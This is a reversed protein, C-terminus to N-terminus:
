LKTNPRLKKFRSLANELRKEAETKERTSSYWNSGSFAPIEGESADSEISERIKPIQVTPMEGESWNPHDDYAEGESDTPMAEKEDSSIVKFHKPRLTDMRVPIKTQLQKSPILLVEGESFFDNENKQTVEGESGDSDDSSEESSSQVKKFSNHLEEMVQEETLESIVPEDPGIPFTPLKIGYLSKTTEPDKPPVVKPPEVTLEEEIIVLEAQVEADRLYIKIPEPPPPEIVIKPPEVIPEPATNPVKNAKRSPQNTLLFSLIYRNVEKKPPSELLDDLDDSISDLSDSKKESSLDLDDLFDSKTSENRLSKRFSQSPLEMSKGTQIGTDVSEIAQIGIEVPPPNVQIAISPRPEAV